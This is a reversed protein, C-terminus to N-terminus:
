LNFVFLTFYIFALKSSRSSFDNGLYVILLIVENGFNQYYKELFIKVMTKYFPYLVTVNKRNRVFVMKLLFDLSKNIKQSIEMRFVYKFGGLPM